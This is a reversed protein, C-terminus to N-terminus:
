NLDKCSKACVILAAPVTILQSVTFQLTLSLSFRLVYLDVSFSDVGLTKGWALWNLFSVGECLYAIFAGLVIGAFTFFIFALTKKM